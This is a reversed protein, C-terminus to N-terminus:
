KVKNRVRQPPWLRPFYRGRFKKGAALRENLHGKGKILETSGAMLHVALVRRPSASLNSLSAHLTLCHHFSVYGASLICPEERWGGLAFNQRIHNKQLELSQNYFDGEPLLGWQHSGPIYYLCGSSEDCEDLAVVATLMRLDSASQWYKKDQHWGVAGCNNVGPAKSILHDEWLYISRAGILRAAARGIIESTAIAELVTDAWWSNKWKTLCEDVKHCRAPPAGKDHEGAALREASLRARRLEENGLLQPGTIFGSTGFEAIESKAPWQAM